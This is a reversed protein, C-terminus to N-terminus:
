ASLYWAGSFDLTLKEKEHSCTAKMTFGLMQEEIHVKM